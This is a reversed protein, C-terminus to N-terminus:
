NIYIYIYLIIEYKICTYYSKLMYLIMCEKIYINKKHYRNLIYIYIEFM